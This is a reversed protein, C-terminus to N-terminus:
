LKPRKTASYNSGGYARTEMLVIKRATSTGKAAISNKTAAAKSLPPSNTMTAVRVQTSRGIGSGGAKGGRVSAQPGAPRATASATAKKAVPAVVPTPREEAVAVRLAPPPVAKDTLSGIEDFSGDQVTGEAAISASDRGERRGRDRPDVLEPWPLTDDDIAVVNVATVIQWDDVESPKVEFFMVGRKAKTVTGVTFRPFRSNPDHPPIIVPVTHTLDVRTRSVRKPMGAEGSVVDGGLNIVRASAAGGAIHDGAAKSIGDEFVEGEQDANPAPEPTTADVPKGNTIYPEGAAADAPDPESTQDDRPEPDQRLLELDDYSDSAAARGGSLNNYIRTFGGGEKLRRAVESASVEQSRFHELVSAPRLWKEREKETRADVLFYLLHRLLNDQDPKQRNCDFYAQNAMRSLENRDGRFDEAKGYVFQFHGYLRLKYGRSFQDYEARDKAFNERAEYMREVLGCKDPREDDQPPGTPVPQPSNKSENM